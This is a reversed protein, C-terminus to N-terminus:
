AAKISQPGRNLHLILLLCACLALFTFDGFKSYFTEPLAQPLPADIVGSEYLPKRAVYRGAPGIMVSIGTNAARAMPLGTEISRLRAQDLHQRPGSTNGYWADNTVVALWEPRDKKPYLRGPFISEYCISPAFSAPGIHLTRPGSGKAFGEAYPALQALGLASLVSRLPLYEGFPILHHKDYFDVFQRKTTTQQNSGDPGTASPAAIAIANYFVSGSNPNDAKRVAGAILYANTPLSADIADLADAYENIRPAANEPWVVYVTDANAIPDSSLALTKQVNRVFFGPDIKERQPINPQVIRVIVDDRENLPTTALRVVGIALLTFTALVCAVIGKALSLTTQASADATGRTLLAPLSGILIVILSLGYVGIWAASQAGAALGALAQGPLNWPLGTLIHGRTYEMGMFAVSFFVLRRWPPGSLYTAMAGVFGFAAAHFCALFAGMGIVAFPAMWAFLEAQVFFALALWHLSVLFFGFGFFWGFLAASKATQLRTKQDARDLIGDIMFLAGSISVAILPTFYFPAFSLTFLIGLVFASLWRRWGQLSALTQVLGM